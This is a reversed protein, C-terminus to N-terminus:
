IEEWTINLKEGALGAKHAMEMLDAILFCDNFDRGLNSDEPEGDRVRFEKYGDVWISMMQRYGCKGLTEGSRIKIIVNM